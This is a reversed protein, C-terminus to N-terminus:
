KLQYVPDLALQRLVALRNPPRTVPNLPPAPLMATEIEDPTGRELQSAWRAPDFRVTRMAKQYRSPAPVAMANGAVASGAITASAAAAPSRESDRFLRALIQKRALLTGADIWAEGGPWGKVNPPAMLDQGLQRSVVVFPYVDGVEFQFQRLTGVLLDVPSKVLTARNAEAFFAESTLLARMAARVDYGSRRFVGAVRAVEAPDPEPSVFERWLKRVITEATQPQALLIDLVEDGDFAGSRGLITKVGPDHLAPRFRFEGTEGDIGWGTFARAAEKVDRESYNGEGLTFLEMLERAFNENPRDKRNSANDLYLIMAPDRAVAHLMERFSGLAYRRLLLNQRYMLRTPRVKRLSSVFHNHWFLTMRETFPSPTALMEGFWWGRLAQGQEIRHRLWARREQPSMARVQSRPMWRDLEPEPQTRPATQVGDLLWDVAESRTLGALAWVEGPAAHFSTRMLLHRAEEPGMAVAPQASAAIALLMGGIVVAFQALKRKM